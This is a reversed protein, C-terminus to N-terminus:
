RRLRDDLWAFFPMVQRGPQMLFITALTEVVADPLVPAQWTGLARVTEANRSSLWEAVGNRDAEPLAAPANPASPIRVIRATGRARIPSSHPLVPPSM